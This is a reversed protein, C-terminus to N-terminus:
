TAVMTAIPREPMIAWCATAFPLYPPVTTWIPALGSQDMNGAAITHDLLADGTGLHIGGGRGSGNGDADSRNNTVTSHYLFLNGTAQDIAGGNNDASNGSLTSQVITVNGNALLAGGNDATNTAM